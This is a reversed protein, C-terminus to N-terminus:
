NFGGYGGDEEGYGGGEEEFGGGGIFGGDDVPGSNDGITLWEPKGLIQKNAIINIMDLERLLSESLSNILSDADSTFSQPVSLDTYKSEGTFRSEVESKDFIKNSKAM